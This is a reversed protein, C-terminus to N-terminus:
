GCASVSCEVRERCSARGIESLHNRWQPLPIAEGPVLELAAVVGHGIERLRLQQISNNVHGRGYGRVMGPGVDQHRGPHAKVENLDSSCVDSSWDGQVRTHRR